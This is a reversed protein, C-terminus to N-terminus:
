GLPSGFPNQKLLKLYNEKIRNVTLKSNYFEQSRKDGAINDYDEDVVNPNLVKNFFGNKSSGTTQNLINSDKNTVSLQIKKFGFIPGTGKTQFGPVNSDVLQRYYEKKLNSM